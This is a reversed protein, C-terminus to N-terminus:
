WWRAAPRRLEGARDSAVRRARKRDRDRHCRGRDPDAAAAAVAASLLSRHASRQFGNRSLDDSRCRRDGLIERFAVSSESSVPGVLDGGPESGRDQLGPWSWRGLGLAGDGRAPRAMCAMTGKMSRGARLASRVIRTSPLGRPACGPHTTSARLYATARGLLTTVAEEIRLHGRQDPSAPRCRRYAASSWFAPTGPVERLV